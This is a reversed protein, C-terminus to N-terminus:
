SSSDQAEGAIVSRWFQDEAAADLYADWFEIIKGDRVHFVHIVPRVHDRITGTLLAVVHGDGDATITHVDFGGSGASLAAVKGLYGWVAERSTYDGSLPHRGSVHMVYGEALLGDIRGIDMAAYAEYLSRVVEAGDHAV